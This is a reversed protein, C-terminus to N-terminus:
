YGQGQRQQRAMQVKRMLADILNTAFRQAYLPDVQQQMMGPAATQM